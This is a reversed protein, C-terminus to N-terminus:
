PIRLDFVHCDRERIMREALTQLAEMASDRLDHAKRVVEELFAEHLEYVM